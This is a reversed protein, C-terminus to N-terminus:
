GRTEWGRLALRRAKYDPMVTGLFNWFAKAHNKHRVHCLEHVIVYDMLEPPLRILRWNLRLEGKANCSGWRRLPSTVSIRGFSVGLRKAWIRATKPFERRAEKKYWLLLELRIEERLAEPSFVTKTLMVVLRDDEILCGTQQEDPQRITLRYAKGRYYVTSGETYTCARHKAKEKRLKELKRQIWDARNRVFSEIKKLSLGMPAMVRVEGEPRVLLAVTRRRRRSRCLIYAPLPM